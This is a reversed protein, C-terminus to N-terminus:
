VLQGAGELWAVATGEDIFARVDFGKEAASAEFFQVKEFGDRFTDLLAIRCSFAPAHEALTGVLRYVDAYSLGTSTADRLDLLLHRDQASAETVVQRLMEASGALDLAGEVTTQLFGDVPVADYSSM